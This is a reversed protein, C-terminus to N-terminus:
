PGKGVGFFGVELVCWVVMFPGKKSLDNRGILSGNIGVLLLATLSGASWIYPSFIKGFLM